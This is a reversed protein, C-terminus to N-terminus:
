KLAHPYHQQLKRAEVIIRRLLMWLCPGRAFSLGLQRFDRKWKQFKWAVLWGNVVVVVVVVLVVVLPILFVVLVAVVVVVVLAVLFVVWSIVCFLRLSVVFLGM